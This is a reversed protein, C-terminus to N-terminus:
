RSKRAGGFLSHCEEITVHKNEIDFKPDFGKGNLNRVSSFFTVTQKKVDVQPRNELKIDKCM